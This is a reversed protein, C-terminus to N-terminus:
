SRRRGERSLRRTGGDAGGPHEDDLGVAEHLLRLESENLDRWAGRPLNGLQIPGIRTRVLRLVPYNVSEFMRRVIRNRGEHIVVKLLLGDRSERLPRVEEPMVRDGDIAIGDRLDDIVQPPPFGDALVLYEKALGYRPHMIRNALEGDNTLLLLGQTPRDLRGVPVVRESIDVLEAVSRRGREDSMTTIYGSPKNLMIYRRRQSRIRRGDVEIQANDPDVKIGLTTVIEGNVRVRGDTILQESARRSAIGAAAMVKQLREPEAM